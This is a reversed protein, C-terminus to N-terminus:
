WLYGVLIRKSTAINIYIVWKTQHLRGKLKNTDTICILLIFWTPSDQYNQYIPHTKWKICTKKFCYTHLGPATRPSEIVIYNNHFPWYCIWFSFGPAQIKVFAKKKSCQGRSRHLIRNTRTFNKPLCISNKDCNPRTQTCISPTSNVLTLKCLFFLKLWKVHRM